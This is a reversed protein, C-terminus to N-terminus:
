NTRNIRQTSAYTDDAGPPMHCMVAYMRTVRQSTGCAMIAPRLPQLRQRLQVRNHLMCTIYIDAYLTVVAIAHRTHLIRNHLPYLLHEQVEPLCLEDHLLHHTLVTAGLVTHKEDIILKATKLIITKVNAACANM